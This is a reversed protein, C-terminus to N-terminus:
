GRLTVEPVAVIRVPGILGSRLQDATFTAWHRHPSDQHRIAIYNALTNSVEIALEHVGARLGALEYTHPAM